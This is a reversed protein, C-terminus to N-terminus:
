AESRGAGATSSIAPAATSDANETSDDAPRVAAFTSEVADSHGASQAPASSNVVNTAASTSASGISTAAVKPGATITAVSGISASRNAATGSPTSSRMYPAHGHSDCSGM